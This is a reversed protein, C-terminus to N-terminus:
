LYSSFRPSAATPLADNTGNFVWSIDTDSEGPIRALRSHQLGSSGSSGSRNSAAKSRPVGSVLDLCGEPSWSKQHNSIGPSAVPRM